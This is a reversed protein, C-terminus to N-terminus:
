RGEPEQQLAKLFTDYFERESKYLAETLGIVDYDYKHVLQNKVAVNKLIVSDQVMKECKELLAEREVASIFGMDILYRLREQMLQCHEYLVFSIRRDRAILKRGRETFCLKDFVKIGYTGKRSSLMGAYKISSDMGYFYEKVCQVIYSVNLSYECANAQYKYRVINNGCSQPTVIQYPIRRTILKGNENYGLIHYEENEDDYGYFLNYHNYHYSCYARREPIYFEDLSINVYYNTRISHKIFQHIDEYCELCESLAMYETDLFHCMYQYSADFGKRPFMFYDLYVSNLDSENYFLQIYNMKKWEDYQNRGYYMQVYLFLDQSNNVADEQSFLVSWDKKDKSVSVQVTNQLRTLKYYLCFHRDYLLQADKTTINYQNWKIFLNGEKDELCESDMGIALRVFSLADLLKIDHIRVILEDKIRCRRKMYFSTSKRGRQDKLMITEKDIVYQIDTEQYLWDEDSLNEVYLTAIKDNEIIAGAYSHHVYSIISPKENIPLIKIDM